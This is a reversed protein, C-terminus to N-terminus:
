RSIATGLRTRDGAAVLLVRGAARPVRLTVRGSAGARERDLRRGARSRAEVVLGAGVRGMTAAIVRASGASRSRVDRLAVQRRVLGVERVQLGGAGPTATLSLAVAGRSRVPVRLDRWVATARLSAARGGASGRVVGDGRVAVVLQRAGSGPRFRPSSIRLPADAVALYGRRAPGRRDLAGRAVTWGPLPATVPGVGLLDVSTGLAPVPDVVVRVTRGALAGVGVAYTRAAAEPELTALEVDPGGEAPRASITVLGGGGRARLRVAMAQSGAPLAVPPSVLTVNGAIRAGPFLPQPAERGEVDWGALAADALTGNPPGPSLVAPPAAMLGGPAAPPPAAVAPAAAM